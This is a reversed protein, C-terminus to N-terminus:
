KKRALELLERLNEKDLKLEEIQNKLLTIMEDKEECTQHATQYTARPDDIKVEWASKRKGLLLWYVDVDPYKTVINVIAESKLQTHLAKGRFSASTMGISKFFAEQTMPARKALQMVREKINPFKNVMVLSM